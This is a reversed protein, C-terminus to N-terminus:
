KGNKLEKAKEIMAEADEITDITEKPKEKSEVKKIPEPELEIIEGTSQEVEIPTNSESLADYHIAKGLLESKGAFIDETKIFRRIVTKFAMQTFWPKWIAQTKATKRVQDIEDAGMFYHNKFIVEKDNVKIKRHIRLFVGKYGEYNKRNYDIMRYHVDDASYEFEDKALVMVPEVLFINSYRYLLKLLGRYDAVFVFNVLGTNGEKFTVMYAQPPTSIFSLTTKTSQVICQIISFPTGKEFVYKKTRALLQIEMVARKLEDENLGGAKHIKKITDDVELFRIQSPTLEKAKDLKDDKKTIKKVM